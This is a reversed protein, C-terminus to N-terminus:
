WTEGETKKRDETRQGRGETEQRRDGTELRSIRTM